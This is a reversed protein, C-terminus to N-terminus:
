EEKEDEKKKKNALATTIMQRIKPSNNRLASRVVSRLSKRGSKTRGVEYVGGNENTLEINYAIGYPILQNCLKELQSNDGFDGYYIQRFTLKGRVYTYAISRKLTGQDVRATAKAKQVINAAIARIEQETITSM